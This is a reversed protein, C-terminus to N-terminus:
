PRIALGVYLTTFREILTGATRSGSELGLDVTARGGATDFGLGGTVAHEDLPSPPAGSATPIPFPLQRWRYGVRFPVLNRGVHLLAAEVGFGYNWTDRSRAQGAAALADAATSWGAHGFSGSITVGVVPQYTAGAHVEVPMPVRASTDGTAAKLRGSFRLSAGALVKSVPSVLFGLSIGVGSYSTNQQQTFARYSSDNPFQRDVSTTTSGTLAHLGVGFTFGATRYAMAVRVDTVGGVSRTNDNVVVPTGRPAVTDTQQVTWNRDLFDSVTVALVVRPGIVGAFGVVPFRTASLSTAGSGADFSRNSGAAVAWGSTTRWAALSAPNLATEPDFLALADGVAASRASFSRDLFGLGRIGFVSDQAAARSAAALVAVAALVVPLSRM